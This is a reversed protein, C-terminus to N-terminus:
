RRGGIARYVARLPASWRFLKTQRMAALEREVSAAHTGADALASELEMVHQTAAQLEQRLTQLRAYTPGAVSFDGRELELLRHNLQALVADRQALRDRLVRVEVELAHRRATAERQAPDVAAETDPM